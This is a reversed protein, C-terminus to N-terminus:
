LLTPGLTRELHEFNDQNSFAYQNTSNLAGAPLANIQNIAAPGNITLLNLGNDNFKLPAGVLGLASALGLLPGSTNPELDTRSLDFRPRDNTYSVGAALGLGRDDTNRNYAYDGRITAIKDNAFRHVNPRYYLLNYNALNYYQAPDLNFSQNFRSTDYSFGYGNQATLPDSGTGPAARVVGTGYKIQYYNENYDAYSYGGRLSFVQSSTPRWNVGAQAVRTRSVIDINSFGVNVGGMPYTGSVPTQNFVKTYNIGDIITENRELLDQFFYYGGSVYGDLHESPRFELKGTVGYRKRRDEVYWYKDQQPVAIGNGLSPAKQLNGANDYFNDFITDTTAHNDTFNSLQQYNGSVTIGFIKGPGFTTSGTAVLRYGPDPQGAPKGVDTAHALAAEATFFPAGGGEFASRTVINVAGGVANPDLDATFTKVVQLQSIMSTPLIDLRVGRAISGLTGNPTGPSAVPLGDITVNNYAPGLGRIVPTAAEDRPHENDTIPIVSLGPIRRLSEVITTDPLARAENSGIADIINIAKRKADIAINNARRIGTVVIDANPQSPDTDQPPQVSSSEAAGTPTSDVGGAPTTQAGSPTTTPQSTAM